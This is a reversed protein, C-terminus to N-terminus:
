FTYRLMARIVHVTRDPTAEGLGLLNSITDPDVGDRFFDDEQRRAVLYGLSLHLNERLMREASAELMFRNTELEPFDPVARSKDVTIEGDATAYTFDLAGRVWKGPLEAFKLGFGVTRFDDKQQAKWKVGAFNGPELIDAGLIEADLSEFAVFAHASVNETFTASLDLGYSEDRGDSLGIRTDQFEEDAVEMFLGAVINERVAYDANFRAAERKKDAFHFRRLSPNVRPGLLAPDIDNDREEHSLKLSLNLDPTPSSRAQFTYTDTETDEVEQFSRDMEEREASAMLKLNSLLRYDLSAKASQREYSYPENTRFDAVIADTVVQLYEDRPTENDREDYNFDVKAGLRDTLNSTFRLNATRTEVEGDLSPRPPEPIVLGPNITAAVFPEDQELRAVAVQGAVTLWRSQWWSGSLMLQHSHSDPSQALEGQAAGNIALFPNQWRLSDNSNDFTSLHYAGELQWRDRVYGVATEVRTTEYDVPAILETSHFLFSGGRILSGQKTAREVDVRYHWPDQKKVAFGLRLTERAHEVTADRLASALGPMAGPNDAPVWDGPLTQNATGAGLYPTRVDDAPFYPIEDYELWLDYSGQRGGEISLRRSDLGLRDANLRLYRADDSRYLLDAGLVGFLGDDELGGFNGFDNFDESVHGLGFDVSGTLEYPFPCEECQWTSTDPGAAVADVDADDPGDEQGTAPSGLTVLFLALLIRAALRRRDTDPM